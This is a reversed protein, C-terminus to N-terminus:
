AIGEPAARAQPGAHCSGGRSFAYVVSRLLSRAPRARRPPTIQWDPVSRPQIRGHNAPVVAKVKEKRSKQRLPVALRVRLSGGLFRWLLSAQRNKKQAFSESM